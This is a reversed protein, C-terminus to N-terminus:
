PQQAEIFFRWEEPSIDGDKSRDAELFTKPDADPYYTQFERWEIIGDHDLDVDPFAADFPPMAACAALLALLMTIVLPANKM